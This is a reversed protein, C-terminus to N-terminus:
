VKEVCVYNISCESPTACHIFSLLGPENGKSKCRFEHKKKSYRIGSLEDAEKGIVFYNWTHLITKEPNDRLCQFEGFSGPIPYTDIYNAIHKNTPTTEITEEIEDEASTHVTGDDYIPQSSETEKIIVPENFECTLNLVTGVYVISESPSPKVVKPPYVAYTIGFEQTQNETKCIYGGALSSVTANEPITLYFGEKPNHSANLRLLEQALKDTELIQYLAVDIDPQATTCPIVFKGDPLTEPLYLTQTSLDDIFPSFPNKFYIYVSSNKNPNRLARCTYKGTHYSYETSNIGVDFDLQSQVADLKTRRAYEKVKSPRGSGSYVWELPEDGECRLDRFQSGHTLGAEDQVEIVSNKNITFIKIGLVDLDM